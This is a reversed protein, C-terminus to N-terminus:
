NGQVSINFAVPRHSLSVALFFIFLFTRRHSGDRILKQLVFSFSKESYLASADTLCVGSYVLM